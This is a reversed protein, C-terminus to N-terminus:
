ASSIQVTHRLFVLGKIQRELTHTSTSDERAVAIKEDIRANHELYNSYSQETNADYVDILRIRKIKRRM